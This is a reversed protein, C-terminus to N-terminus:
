EQKSRRKNNQQPQQQLRQFRVDDDAADEVDSAAAVADAKEEPAVIGCGDDAAIRLHSPLMLLLLPLLILRGLLVQLM